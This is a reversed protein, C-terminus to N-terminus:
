IIVIPTITREVVVMYQKINIITDYDASSRPPGIRTKSHNSMFSQARLFLTNIHSEALSKQIIVAIGHPKEDTTVVCAHSHIKSDFYHYSADGIRDTIEQLDTIEKVKRSHRDGSILDRHFEEYEADGDYRPDRARLDVEILGMSYAILRNKIIKPNFDFTFLLVYSTGTPYVLEELTPPKELSQGVDPNLTRM